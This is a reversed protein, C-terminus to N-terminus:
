AGAAQVIAVLGKQDKRTSGGARVSMNLITGLYDAKNPNLYVTVGSLARYVRKPDWIIVAENDTAAGAATSAKKVPTSANTYLGASSRKYLKIGCIEGILGKALVDARGTKNYDIFDPIKLLQGYMNGSILGVLGDEGSDMNTLLTLADIFNDRTLAKRTGTAGATAAPIAAGDTRVINTALSPSWVNIFEKAVKLNLVGTHQDVISQRKAYNVLLEEEDMLHTPMTAHLSIDYKNEDDARQTAELPFVSPNTVVEPEDGAVGRSVTKGKLFPSDDVANMYFSNDPYMKQEADRVFSTVLPAAM